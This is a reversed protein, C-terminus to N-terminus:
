GRHGGVPFRDVLRETVAAVMWRAVGAVPARAALDAFFGRVILQEAM